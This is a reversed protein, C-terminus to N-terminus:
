AWARLARSKSAGIMSSSDFISSSRVKEWDVSTSREPCISCSMSRHLSFFLAIKEFSVGHCFTWQGKCYIYWDPDSKRIKEDVTMLIPLCRNGYDDTKMDREAARRFAAYFDDYEKQWAAAEDNKDLWRAAQIIAKIKGSTRAAIVVGRAAAMSRMYAVLIDRYFLVLLMWLPMFGAPLAGRLSRDLAERPMGADLYGVLDRQLAEQAEKQSSIDRAVLIGGAVRGADDCLPSVSVLFYGGLTSEYVEAAHIHGDYLSQSHPCFAAPSSLGHVIEASPRGILDDAKPGLLGAM